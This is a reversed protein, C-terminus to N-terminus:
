AASRGGVRAMGGTLRAALAAAQVRLEPIATSEWEAGRRLAGITWLPAGAVGGADILQGDPTVDVGLGLRDRRALGSALLGALLPGATPSAPDASPGTCNVVAGVELTGCWAGHQLTVVAGEATPEVGRVRAPRLTLRGTDLLLQITAAPEPAMRHRVLEWRRALHRVFREREPAPLGWWLGTTVPRLGDVVSRWDEGRAAAVALEARLVRLLGRATASTPEGPLACPPALRTAVPRSSAPLRGHRSVAHIVGDHGRAHLSLAVDVATLGSGVLLVPARPDLDDLWATRWPDDVYAAGAAALGAPDTPRGNGTAVVVHDATLVDGGALRVALAPRPPARPRGPWPVRRRRRAGPRRRRHGSPRRAAGAAVSSGLLEALYDGFLQRRAFGDRGGTDGHAAAWATFHDPDDPFASLNGTRVNMLHVPETTSYAIGRAPRPAPDILSVSPPEPQRALHVAVLAGAAGGGVIVVSHRVREDM